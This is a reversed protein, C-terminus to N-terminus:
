AGIIYSFTDTDDFHYPKDAYNIMMASPSISTFAHAINKGVYIREYEDNDGSLLIEKHEKTKTDELVLRLKGQLVVFWERKTKHYHNGRTKGSKEFTVFYIQGLSSSGDDVEDGKLFDVLFGRDDRRKVAHDITYDM